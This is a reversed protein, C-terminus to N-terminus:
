GTSVLRLEETKFTPTGHPNRLKYFFVTLIQLQLQLIEVPLGSLLSIKLPARCMCVFICLVFNTAVYKSINCLIAVYVFCRVVYM